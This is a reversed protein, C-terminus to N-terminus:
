SAGNSEAWESPQVGFADRAQELAEAISSHWADGSDETNRSKWELVFGDDSKLIRLDLLATRIPTPPPTSAGAPLWGHHEEGGFEVPRGTILRVVDM